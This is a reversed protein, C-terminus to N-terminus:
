IRYRDYFYDVGFRAVTESLRKRDDDNDISRLYKKSINEATANSQTTSDPSGRSAQSDSLKSELLFHEHEM